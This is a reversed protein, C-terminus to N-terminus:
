WCNSRTLPNPYPHVSDIFEGCVKWFIIQLRSINERSGLSVRHHTPYMKRVSLDVKLGDCFGHCTKETNQVVFCGSIGWFVGWKPTSFQSKRSRPDLYWFDSEPAFYGGLTSCIVNHINQSLEWLKQFFRSFCTKKPWVVANEARGPFIHIM